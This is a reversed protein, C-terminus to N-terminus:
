EVSRDGLETRVVRKGFQKPNALEPPLPQELTTLLEALESAIKCELTLFSTAKGQAGLRATRGSPTHTHTHTHSCTHSHSPVHTHTHTHTHLHSRSHSPTHTLAHTLTLTLTLTHMHTHSHPHPHSYLLTHTHRHTCDFISRELPSALEELEGCRHVYDEISHPVDYNIVHSIGPIDMGRSAVDTAVVVDVDGLTM